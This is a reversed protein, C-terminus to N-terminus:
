SLSGGENKKTLQKEMCAYIQTGLDATRQHAITDTDLVELIDIYVHSAHWPALTKITETGQVTLVVIPVQAKQAIKLVGNHFPLLELTKSRTGEPYVAISAQDTQILRTARQITKMANKPNERDISLYCCRRIIRGFIPIHLNEDKSIFALEARRFAQWTVIPDFKSRHNSVLLFRGDTPLLEGGTVHTHIRCVKLSIATFSYLLFHYFRSNTDYEKNPNVLLSSIVLILLYLILLGLLVLALIGLIKLLIM